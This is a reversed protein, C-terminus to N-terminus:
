YLFLNVILGQVARKGASQLSKEDLQRFIIYIALTIQM